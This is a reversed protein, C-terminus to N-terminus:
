GFISKVFADVTDKNLLYWWTVEELVIMYVYMALGGLSSILMSLLYFKANGELKYKHNRFM